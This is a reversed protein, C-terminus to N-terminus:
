LHRIFQKLRKESNEFYISCLEKLERRVYIEYPVIPYYYTYRGKKETMLLGKKEIRSLFTCVTQQKWLIGYREEILAMIDRLNSAMDNKRNYEYICGLVMKECTSLDGNKFEAEKM